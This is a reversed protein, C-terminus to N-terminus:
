CASLQNVSLSCCAKSLGSTKSRSSLLFTMSLSHLAHREKQNSSRRERQAPAGRRKRPNPWAPTTSGPMPLPPKWSGPASPWAAKSSCKCCRKETPSCSPIAKAIHNEGSAVAQTLLNNFDQGTVEPLLEFLPTGITQALTRDWLALVGPNNPFVNFVYRGLLNARQTATVHLYADSAAEILFDLSLLLPLASFISSLDSARAPVVRLYACYYSSAFHGIRLLKAVRPAGHSHASHRGGRVDARM